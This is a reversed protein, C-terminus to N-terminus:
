LDGDSLLFDTLLVQQVGTTRLAANSAAHLRAQLAQLGGPAQTRRPDAEMLVQQTVQQLAPKNAAVWDADAASTRVAVTAAMSHGDRSIAVTPLTLYRMERRLQDRHQLYLWTATFSAALLRVGRGGAYLLWSGGVVRKAMSAVSFFIVGV